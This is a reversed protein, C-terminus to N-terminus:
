NLRLEVLMASCHGKTFAAAGGLQDGWTELTADACTQAVTDLYTGFLLWLDSFGVEMGIAMFDVSQLAAAANARVDMVYALQTEVDARTGLRTLHGGIFTDFDYALADGHAQIFGHVDQSLALNMFPAWGPFVVDVLMLARQNPFYVFTNGPSHNTGNYALEVVQNGVELTYSDEFTETPLPIPGGGVFQGYPYERNPDNAGVEALHVAADAQAIYVADAPLLGAAGIHDAHAHSYIVHTVPEDTTAAIADVLMQGMSPPADVVIVGEGTTLFAAQYSGDSVVYLGDGLDEIWYGEEGVAPGVATEPLAPAGAAMAAERAEAVPVGTAATLGAAMVVAGSGPAGVGNITIYANGDADFDLSTPFSLGALVVESADGEHIRVVSGSNPIPGQDSFIGIQVAYLNGDPGVRLDTPMTLDTAYDSVTGDAAVTVVKASGPVFPFGSLLSVYVAGDAGFAVGTPVPDMEMADGRASNPLPGPIGDFVTVLTVEGSAPDVTYLANAGADAIWLLGDPGAAMGYPHSELIFGDPNDAAEIDWLNAVETLEDGVHVVAAVLPLRDEGAEAVWAGSTAYLEGDLLALRNGGSTDEPLVISPLAAVETQTGDPAVMVIRASDGMSLTVEEGTEPDTMPVQEEGGVGAEIVWINGEPDLLIGQPGNFGEAIVQPEVPAAEPAPLMGLQTLLGLNDFNEWDEVILGNELRAIYIGTAAAQGDNVNATIRAVVRDEAAMIDDITLVFSSFPALTEDLAAAVEEASAFTTSEGYRHQTYGPAIVEALVTDDRQNIVEEIVRTVVAMNAEADDQAL